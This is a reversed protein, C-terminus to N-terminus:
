NAPQGARVELVAAEDARGVARLMEAYDRLTEGLRPHRAAERIGLAERYLPEAEAYRRQDRLVGALANLTTAKTPSDGAVVARSIALARRLTAEAAEYRRLKWQAEGINNLALALNPHSSGLTREVIQRAREYMALADDYRGLEYYVGGLNNLGAAVYPHDPGYAREEEALLRRMLPEAEAFRGQYFYAAALGSLYGPDPESTFRAGVAAAQAQLYLSEAQAYEGTRLRVGAMGSLSRSFLAQDPPTLSRAISLARSYYQDAEALQGTERALAGLENLTEAVDHHAPGYLRERARLADELLQRADDYAGLSGYVRGMTHMIRAYLEPQGALERRVRLVGRDLVGRATLDGTPEGYPDPEEFLNVLFNTVQQAAAAERAALREANRARVLGVTAAVTGLVLAATTLGAALVVGRHRRFFKSFRYRASPARALIPEHALFRQVDAAFANVTEYRRTRDHEIAKLVVRDLDGHIERRLKESDSSRQYGAVAADRPDERLRDSPPAPIIQGVALNAIFVYMGLEAPDAPLQGTLLEYLIVGLAYIDARTDVDMGPAGAQEPSMYAATGLPGQQTVLTSETLQQGLAKAIGFDIIKPQPLGEHEVILINSPKLDRHIVGKQHAHQVGHCVQLFLELRQRVTLRQTDCYETVPAGNVLEMAFYPQDEATAGANFVSAIAPHNMVALAQREAEIRAVADRTAVGPKILKLAVRRRVSGLEEAEYVIGMGGEGLVRLIRYPGIREHTDESESNGEPRRL